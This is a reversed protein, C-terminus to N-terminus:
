FSVPRGQRGERVLREAGAGPSMKARLVELRHLVGLVDTQTASAPLHDRLIREATDDIDEDHRPAERAVREYTDAGLKVTRRTPAMAETYAPAPCILSV